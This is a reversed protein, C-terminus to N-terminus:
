KGGPSVRRKGDGVAGEGAVYGDWAWGLRFGVQDCASVLPLLVNMEAMAKM